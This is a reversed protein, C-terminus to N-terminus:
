NLAAFDEACVAARFLIKGYPYLNLVSGIMIAWDSILTIVLKFYNLLVLNCNEALM